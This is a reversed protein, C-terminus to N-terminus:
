ASEVSRPEACSATCFAANLAHRRIRWSRSSPLARAHNRAITTLSHLLVHRLRAARGPRHRIPRRHRDAPRLRRGAARRATPSAATSARRGHPARQQTKEHVHADLLGRRGQPDRHRRHLRSRGARGGSKPLQHASRPSPTSPLRRCGASQEVFGVPASPRAGTTVGPARSRRVRPAASM